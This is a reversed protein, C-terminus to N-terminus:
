FKVPLKELGRVNTGPRWRLNEANVALKLNPAERLLTQFIISAELRALPAGLCFHIGQGFSLHKNPDRSLELNNPNSFQAEDRNASGLVLYVLEGKPITVGHLELDDRTYRESAYEVPSDFRLLEEIAPKMLAPDNRLQELQEPQTLLALTGNGILNVTTEHGAIVLLVIMALLEDESLRDGAEEVTTLVSILDDEPQKRKLKVVRRVLSVFMMIQPISFMASLPSVTARLIANSYKAFSAREREPIGLMESIITVPIPLAYDRILDMQGNRKASHILEESLTQVRTRMREILRPTFGQHVLGRLRTHDPVDLDLMNRELAKLFGPITTTKKLQAPTMANHRDKVLQDSKLLRSVDEYRTILWASSRNGVAKLQHVPAEDRLRAYYPYARAKFESSAINEAPIPNPKSATLTM